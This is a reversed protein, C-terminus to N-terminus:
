SSWLYNYRYNWQLSAYIQSLLPELNSWDETQEFFRLVHLLPTKMMIATTNEMHHRCRRFLCSQLHLSTHGFTRLRDGREIYRFLPIPIPLCWHPKWYLMQNLKYAM